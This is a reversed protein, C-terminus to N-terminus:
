NQSIQVPKNINRVKYKKRKGGMKREEGRERGGVKRTEKKNRALDMVYRPDVLCNQLHTSPVTFCDDHSTGTQGVSPLSM